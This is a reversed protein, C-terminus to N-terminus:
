DPPPKRGEIAKVRSHFEEENIETVRLIKRPKGHGTIIEISSVPLHLEAALLQILAKNAKGGEPPVALNVKLADGLWGQIRTQSSNPVV